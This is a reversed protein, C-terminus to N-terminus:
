RRYISKLYDIEKQSIDAYCNSNEPHMIDRIHTSNNPTHQLDLLHLTEHILVVPKQGLCKKTSYIKVEGKTFLKPNAPSFYPQAQANIFTKYPTENTPPSFKLNNNKIECIFTIDAKGLYFKKFKVVNDTKNEIYKLANEIDGFYKGRFFSDCNKTTYTLPMHSWHMESTNPFQDESIVVFAQYFKFFFLSAIIIVLFIVLSFNMSKKRKSKM